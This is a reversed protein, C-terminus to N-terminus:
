LGMCISILLIKPLGVNCALHLVKFYSVKNLVLELVHHRKHAQSETWQDYDCDYKPQIQARFGLLLQSMEFIAENRAATLCVNKKKKEQFDSQHVLGLSLQSTKYYVHVFGNYTAGFEFYGRAFDVKVNLHLAHKSFIILALLDLIEPEM